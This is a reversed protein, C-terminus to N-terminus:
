RLYPSLTELALSPSNVCFQILVASGTSHSLRHAFLERDLAGPLLSLTNGGPLDVCVAGHSAIMGDVDPRGSLVICHFVPIRRHFNVIVSEVATPAAAAASAVPAAIDINNRAIAKGLLGM